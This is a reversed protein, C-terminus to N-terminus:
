TWDIDRLGPRCGKAQFLWWFSGLSAPDLLEAAQSARSLGEVYRQPDSYALDIPPRVADLDLARLADAQSVLASSDAGADRGARECADMAVHATIDCSGDPIPVVQHGDRYGTLTGAPFAGATRQGQLHGYDVALALGHDLRGVLDAWAQDRLSGIEAREGPQGLPWWTEVWDTQESTLGGGLSEASSPSEVLVQHLVNDDGVEAVDCPVNDLFEHAIVLGEVGNPLHEVWSIPSPLEVPRQRIEVAVPHVRQATEAPLAKMLGVLLSADGAGVDVVDLRGPCGLAADVAVVLTAVSDALLSSATVSTRFHAVPSSNRYFGGTGYLAVAMADSWTSSTM